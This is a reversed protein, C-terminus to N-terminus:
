KREEEEATIYLQDEEGITEVITMIKTTVMLNTGLRELLPDKDNLRTLTKVILMNGCRATIVFVDPQIPRKKRAGHRDCILYRPSFM